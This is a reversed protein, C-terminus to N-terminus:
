VTIFPSKGKFGKSSNLMKLSYICKQKEQLTNSSYWELTQIYIYLTISGAAPGGHKWDTLESAAPLLKMNQHVSVVTIEVTEDKLFFAFLHLERHTSNHREPGSVFWQGSM